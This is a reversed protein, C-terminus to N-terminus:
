AIFRKRRILGLGSLGMGLMWLSSVEPIVPGGEIQPLSGVGIAASFSFTSPDDIKGISPVGAKGYLAQGSIDWRSGPSFAGAAAGGTLLFPEGVNVFQSSGEIFYFTGGTCAVGIGGVCVKNGTGFFPFGSWVESLSLNDTLTPAYTWSLYLSEQPDEGAALTVADGKADLGASNYDGTAFSFPATSLPLGVGGAGTTRPDFDLDHDEAFQLTGGPGFSTTITGFAPIGALASIPLGNLTFTVQSAIDGVPNPVNSFDLTTGSTVGAMSQIEGVGFVALNTVGAGAGIYAGFAALDTGTIDDLTVGAFGGCFAPCVVVGPLGATIGTLVAFKNDTPDLPVGLDLGIGWGIPAPDGLAITFPDDVWNLEFSAIRATYNVNEGIFTGLAGVADSAFAPQAGILAVLAGALIGRVNRM